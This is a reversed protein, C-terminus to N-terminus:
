AQDIIDTARLSQDAFALHLSELFALGDAPTYRRGNQAIIGKNLYKEFVSTLGSYMILQGDFIVSGYIQELAGTKRLFNVAYM